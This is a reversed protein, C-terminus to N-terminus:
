NRVLDKKAIKISKRRLKQHYTNLNSNKSKLELKVDNNKVNL